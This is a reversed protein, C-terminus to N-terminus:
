SESNEAAHVNMMDIDVVSILVAFALAFLGAIRAPTKKQM